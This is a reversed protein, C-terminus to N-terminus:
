IIIESKKNSVIQFIWDYSSTLAKSIASDIFEITIRVFICNDIRMRRIFSISKDSLCFDFSAKYRSADRKKKKM